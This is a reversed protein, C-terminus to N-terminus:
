LQFFTNLCDASSVNKKQMMHGDHTIIILTSISVCWYKFLWRICQNVYVIGFANSSIDFKMFTMQHISRHSEM